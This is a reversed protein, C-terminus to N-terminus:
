LEIPQKKKILIKNKLTENKRYRQMYIDKEEEDEFLLDLLINLKEKNSLSKKIIQNYLFIQQKDKNNALEKSKELIKAFLRINNILEYFDIEGNPIRFEITNKYCNGINQLNLGYYRSGQNEKIYKVCDELTEIKEMNVKLNSISKLNPLIPKAYRIISSRSKKGVRNTIIYLVDEVNSYINLFVKFEDISKIYDFGLHIHGGCSKDTYFNNHNMFNCLYYLEKLCNSDFHLVPSVIELGNNVSSDNKIHWNQLIQKILKIQKWDKNCAELEVGITIDKDIDYNINTLSLNDLLNIKNNEENSELIEKYINEGLLNILEKKFKEDETLQILNLRFKLYKNQKFYNLVFEKNDISNILDSRFNSYDKMVAYKQRLIDSKFSKIIKVRKSTNFDVMLLEKTEDEQLRLAVEIKIEEPCYKYYQLLIKDNQITDLVYPIYINSLCSLQEIKDIDNKLTCIINKKYYDDDLLGICIIKNTEEKLTNIIVCRYYDDEIFPIYKMKVEEDEVMKLENYLRKDKNDGEYFNIICRLKLEINKIHFFYEERNLKLILKNREDETANRLYNDLEDSSVKMLEEKSMKLYDKEENM